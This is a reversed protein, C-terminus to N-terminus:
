RYKEASKRRLKKRIKLKGGRIRMEGREFSVMYYYYKVRWCNWAIMNKHYNSELKGRVERPRSSETSLREPVKESSTGLREPLKSGALLVRKGEEV